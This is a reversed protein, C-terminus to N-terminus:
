WPLNRIIVQVNKQNQSILRQYCIDEAPGNVLSVNGFLASDFPFSKSISLVLGQGLIHAYKDVILSDVFKFDEFTKSLTVNNM